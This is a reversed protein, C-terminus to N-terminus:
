GSLGYWSQHQDLYHQLIIAAAAADREVHPYLEDAEQSSYFENVEVIEPTLEHQKLFDRLSQLFSSVKLSQSTPAGAETYPLGVVITRVEYEKVLALLGQLVKTMHPQDAELTTLPQAILGSESLAVGTRKFGIDLGLLPSNM